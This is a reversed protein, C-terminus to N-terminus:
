GEARAGVARNAELAKKLMWWLIGVGVVLLLLFVILASLQLDVKYSGLRAIPAIEMNQVWQRSIANLGIVGFQALGTLAALRRSAGKIQLLMLLWPLGPSAAALPFIIRMYPNSLAQLFYDLRTGFIYWSGFAGYWLLGATYLAAAFRAASRRYEPTERDSLFATDIMLYAATTTIAMGFMFLWRPILTPDATNLGFGSAAGAANQFNLMPYWGVTNTMLSLANTFLFGVIVFLAASTWALLNGIRMSVHGHIALRYVYISGYAVIVMWFVSFWPWAMLITAPYFFQYYAVQIFLLPLIGFNIGLALAFPLALAIHHAATRLHGRGFVGFLAILPAGAYWLNMASVHLAFGLVKLTEIFWFPTPYGLPNQPALLPFDNM